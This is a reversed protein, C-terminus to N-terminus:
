IIHLLALSVFSTYYNDVDHKSYLLPWWVPYSTYHPSIVLLTPLHLLTSNQKWACAHVLSRGIYQVYTIVSLSVPENIAPPILRRLALTSLTM